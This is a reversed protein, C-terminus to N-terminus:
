AQQRQGKGTEEEVEVQVALQVNEDGVAMHLVVDVLNLPPYFVGLRGVQEVILALSEDLNSM